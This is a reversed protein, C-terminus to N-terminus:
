VLQFGEMAEEPLSSIPGGAGLGTGSSVQTIKVDITEPMNQTLGM